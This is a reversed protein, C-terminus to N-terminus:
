PQFGLLCGAPLLTLSQSSCRNKCRNVDSDWLLWDSGESYWGPSLDEPQPIFSLSQFIFVCLASGHLVFANEGGKPPTLLRKKLPILLPPLAASISCLHRCHELWCLGAGLAAWCSKPVANQRSRCSLAHELIGAACAPRVRPFCVRFCRVRIRPLARAIGM